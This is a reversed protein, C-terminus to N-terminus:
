AATRHGGFVTGGLVGIGVAAGAAAIGLMLGGAIYLLAAAQVEM